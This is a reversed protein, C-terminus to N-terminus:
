AAVRSYRGLRGGVASARRHGHPHTECPPGAERKKWGYLNALVFQEYGVAPKAAFALDRFFKIISVAGGQDFYYPFARAGTAPADPVSASAFILLPKLCSVLAAM